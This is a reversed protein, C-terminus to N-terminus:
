KYISGNETMNCSIVRDAVSSQLNGHLVLFIKDTNLTKLLESLEIISPDDMYKFIEDMFFTSVWGLMQTLGALFRIDALLKQGGSLTNYDVYKQYKEVFLKLNLTPRISGNNLETVTEVKINEDTNFKEAIKKLLTAVLMGKDSLVKSNFNQVNDLVEKLTSIKDNLGKIEDLISEKKQRHQICNQYIENNIKVSGLEQHISVKSEGLVELAKTLKFIENDIETSDPVEKDHILSLENHIQDERNKLSELKQLNNQLNLQYTTIQVNTDAYLKVNNFEAQYSEKKVKLDNEETTIVNLATQLKEIETELNPIKWDQGCHPCKDPHSKLKDLNNKVLAKKTNLDMLLSDTEKINNLIGDMKDQVDIIKYKECFEKYTKNQEEISSCNDIISKLENNLRNRTNNNSSNFNLIDDISRKQTKAQEIRADCLRIKEDIVELKEKLTNEDKFQVNENLKIFSDLSNVEGQKQSLVSHLNNLNDYGIKLNKSVNDTLARIYNMGCIESLFSVRGSDSMDTFIGNSTQEIYILSYFRLFGLKEELIEQRSRISESEQIVDDVYFEMKGLTRHIKYTHEKYELTLTGEFKKGEKFVLSFDSKSYGPIKGFFMYQMLRFLTSKGSGVAGEIVNLGHYKEFNFDLNKISLFNKAKLTKLKFNLDPLGFNSSDTTQVINQIFQRARPDIENLYEELVGLVNLDSDKVAFDMKKAQPRVRVVVNEKTEQQEQLKELRQSENEVYEFRLFGTVPIRNYQNSPIDYIIVSTNIDDGYSHQIPTGPSVFIESDYTKHIHGVFARKYKSIDIFNNSYPSIKPSVDGHAILIDAEKYDFSNSPVWSKFHVKKSDIEVVDDIYIDVDEDRLLSVLSYKDYESCDTVASRVTVDHNGLICRVKINNKTFNRLFKKLTYMVIPAPRGVQLLDGAIWFEQAQNDKCIQVLTESLKTFQNLRFYPTPNYTQYDGVHIDASVLVRM